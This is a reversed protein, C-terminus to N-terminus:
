VSDRRRPSPAYPDVRRHLHRDPAVTITLKNHIDAITKLVPCESDPTARTASAPPNTGAAAVVPNSSM